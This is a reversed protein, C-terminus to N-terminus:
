VIKNLKLFNELFCVAEERLVREAHPVTLKCVTEYGGKAFEEEPPLYMVTRGHETVTVLDLEPFSVITTSSLSMM